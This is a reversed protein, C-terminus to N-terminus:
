EITPASPKVAPDPEAFDTASIPARELTVDRADEPSGGAPIYTIVVKSGIEGRLMDLIDEEDVENIHQGDIKIIADSAALGAQHAPKGKLVSRIVLKKGSKRDDVHGFSMGIGGFPSQPPQFQISAGEIVDAVESGDAGLFKQAALLNEYPALYRHDCKDQIHTSIGEMIRVTKIGRGSVDSVNWYVFDEVANTKKWKLCGDLVAKDLGRDGKVTFVSYDVDALGSAYIYLTNPLNNELNFIEFSRLFVGDAAINGAVTPSNLSTESGRGEFTMRRIGAAFIRKIIYERKTRWGETRFYSFPLPTAAQRSAREDIHSLIFPEFLSFNESAKKLEEQQSSLTSIALSAKEMHASIESLKEEAKQRYDEASHHLSAHAAELQSYRDQIKKHELQLNKFEVFLFICFGLVILGSISIVPKLYRM